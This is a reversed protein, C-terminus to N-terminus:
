YFYKTFKNSSLSDVQHPVSHYGTAHIGNRPQYESYVNISSRIYEQDSKNLLYQTYVCENVKTHAFRDTYILLFVYPQLDSFKEESELKELVQGLLAHEQHYDCKSMMRFEANPYRAVLSKM